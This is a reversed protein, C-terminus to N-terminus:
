AAEIEEKSRARAAVDHCGQVQNPQIGQSRLTKYEVLDKAIQRDAHNKWSSVPKRNPLADASIGFGALHDRYALTCDPDTCCAPCRM